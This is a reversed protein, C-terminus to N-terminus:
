FLNWSIMLLPASKDQMNGRVILFLCFLLGVAIFLSCLVDGLEGIM